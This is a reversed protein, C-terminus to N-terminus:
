PVPHPPGAAHGLRILLQAPRRGANPKPDKLWEPQRRSVAVWQSSANNSLVALPSLRINLGLISASGVSRAALDHSQTMDKPAPYSLPRFCDKPRARRLLSVM